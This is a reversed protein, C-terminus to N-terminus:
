ATSLLYLSGFPLCIALGLLIRLLPKGWWAEDAVVKRLMIGPQNRAQYIIGLYSGFGLGILGNDIMSKAQYAHSMDEDPCKALIQETWLADNTIRADQVLYNITEILLCSVFLITWKLVLPGLDKHRPDFIERLSHQLVERFCFHLTLALWAGLQWGFLLQNWTHVGLFVRSYGITVGFALAVLLLGIRTPTKALWSDAWKPSHGISANYDLWITLATGM